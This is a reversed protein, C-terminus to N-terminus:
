GGAPTESSDDEDDGLEAPAIRQVIRRLRRYDTALQAPALCLMGERVFTARQAGHLDLHASWATLEALPPAEHGTAIRSIHGPSLKVRRAFDRIGIDLAALRRRFLLSFRSAM